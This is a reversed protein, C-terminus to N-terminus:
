EEDSEDIRDRLIAIKEIEIELSWDGKTRNTGDTSTKEERSVQHRVREKRLHGGLIMVVGGGEGITVSEDDYIWGPKGVIGRFVDNWSNLVATSPPTSNVKYHSLSLMRLGSSFTLTQPTSM